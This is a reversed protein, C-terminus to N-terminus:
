NLTAVQKESGIEINRPRAVLTEDKKFYIKLGTRSARDWM